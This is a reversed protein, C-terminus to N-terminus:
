VPCHAYMVTDSAVSGLLLRKFGSRGCTGIM